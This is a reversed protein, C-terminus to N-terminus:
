RRPRGRPRRSEPRGRREGRDPASAEGPSSSPNRAGPQRDRVAMLQFAERVLSGLWDDDLRAMEVGIWGAPRVYPPRFFIQPAEEILADQAGPGVPLWVAVHGDGHHNNAFMAFVRKPTFFTPEGHSIKEIAGPMSLCLRRLRKLQTGDDKRTDPPLPKPRPRKGTTM